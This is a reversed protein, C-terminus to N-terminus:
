TAAWGFFTWTQSGPGEIGGAPGSKDRIRPDDLLLFAEALLYPTAEARLRAALNTAVQDSSIEDLRALVSDPPDAVLAFSDKTAITGRGDEEGSVLRARDRAFAFAAEASSGKARVIFQRAGM